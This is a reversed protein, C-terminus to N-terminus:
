KSKDWTKVKVEDVGFGIDTIKIDTEVRIFEYELGPYNKEYYELNKAIGTYRDDGKTVMRELYAEGGLEQHKSYSFSGSDSAKSEIFTIKPPPGESLFAKDMGNRGNQFQESIDKGLNNNKGIMGAVEEGFDGKDHSFYKSNDIKREYKWAEDLDFHESIENLTDLKNAIKSREKKLKKIVDESAGEKVLKAIEDDLKKLVEACPTDNHVLLGLDSVFFNHNGELELNYVDRDLYIDEQVSSVEIDGLEKSFLIDGEKLKGAEVWGANKVYFPHEVTTEIIVNNKMEIKIIKSVREHFTEVVEKLVVERNVLDYTYVREGIKVNEIRRLGYETSVLTGEVFCGADLLNCIAMNIKRDLANTLSVFRKKLSQAAEIAANLTRGFGQPISNRVAKQVKGFLEVAEDGYKAALEGAKGLKKLAQMGETAAKTGKKSRKVIDGVVPILGITALITGEVDGKIVNATIDRIDAIQGVVPICGVIVEGVTGQISADDSFEGLIIQGWVKKTMEQGKKNGTIFSDLGFTPNGLVLGADMEKLAQKGLASGLEGKNNWLQGPVDKLGVINDLAGQMEAGPDKWLSTEEQKSIEPGPAQKNDAFIINTSREFPCKFYSEGTLIGAGNIKVDSKAKEWYISTVEKLKCKGFKKCKAFDIINKGIINDADTLAVQGQMTVTKNYTAEVPQIYEGEPCEVYSNHCVYVEGFKIDAM